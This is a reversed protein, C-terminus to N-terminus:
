TQKKLVIGLGIGLVIGVLTLLTMAWGWQEAPTGRYAIVAQHVGPPVTLTALGDPTTGITQWPSQDVRIQWGPYYLM